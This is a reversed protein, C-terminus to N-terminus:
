SMSASHGISETRWQYIPLVLGIESTTCFSYSSNIALPSIWHRSGQFFGRWRASAVIGPVTCLVSAIKWSCDSQLALMVTKVRLQLLLQPKSPPCRVGGAPTWNTWSEFGLHNPKAVRHEEGSRTLMQSQEEPWASWHRVILTSLLYRWHHNQCGAGQHM